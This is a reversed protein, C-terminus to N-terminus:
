RIASAAGLANSVSELQRVQNKYAEIDHRKEVPPLLKFTPNYGGGKKWKKPVLSLAAGKTKKASEEIVEDDVQLANMHAFALIRQLDADEGDALAGAKDFAELARALSILREQLVNPRCGLTVKTAGDKTFVKINLARAAEALDVVEKKM